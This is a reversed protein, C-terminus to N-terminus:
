NVYEEYGYCANQADFDSQRYYKERYENAYKSALEKFKNNETLAYNLNNVSYLMLTAYAKQDKNVANNLAELYYEKAIGATMYEKRWKDLCDVMQYYKHGSSWGYSTMMWANGWFSTNHFAHGLKLYADARQKKDKGKAIEELDILTKIFDTKSFQYSFDREEYGSLSKPVFPDENLYESYYYTKRWFQQDMSLFTEYATKLDRNRFAITGKMDRYADIPSFTQNCLYNEFGNKEKKELLEILQDMDDVSANFDFQRLYYYYDSVPGLSSGNGSYNERDKDSIGKLLCYTVIDGKTRYENALALDLTYVIQYLGNKEEFLGNKDEDSIFYGTKSPVYVDGRKLQDMLSIYKNKFPLSLIDDSKISIWLTEILQQLQITKNADNSVMSLYRKIDAPNEELLSLHALAMNYYDKEEQQQAGNLFKGVLVKLKRLYEMDTQYNKKKTEDQKECNYYEYAQSFPNKETQLFVSSILWDELKNIERMVLFPLYQNNNDLEYVKEMKDLARGPFNLSNIVYGISQEKKTFTDPIELDRNFLEVCRNKKEDCNDFVQIYFQNAELKRNLRDLSMAKFLGSWVSMLSNPNTTKFYTDYTNSAQEYMENQWYLRVLQFAYREKLFETKVQKMKIEAEEILKDQSSIVAPSVDGWDEFITFQVAEVKKAYVLYELIPKYQKKSTLFEILSNDQYKKLKDSQYSDVFSDPDTGYQISYIDDFNVDKSTAEQWERINWARDSERFDPSLINYRSSTTYIFPQLAQMRPLRAQFTMTRYEWEALYYGCASTYPAGLILNIFIVLLFIKSKM